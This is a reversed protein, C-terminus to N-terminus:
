YITGFGNFCKHAQAIAQPKQIKNLSSTLITVQLVKEATDVNLKSLICNAFKAEGEIKPPSNPCSTIAILKACTIAAGTFQKSLCPAESLTQSIHASGDM